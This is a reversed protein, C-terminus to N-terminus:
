CRVVFLLLSSSLPSVVHRAYFSGYMRVLLAARDELKRLPEAAAVAAQEAGRLFGDRARQSIGVAVPPVVLPLEPREPDDAHVGGRALVPEGVALEQEPQFFRADFDVPLDERAERDVVGGPEAREGISGFGGQRLPTRPKGPVESCIARRRSSPIAAMAAARLSLSRRSAFPRKKPFFPATEPIRFPMAASGTSSRLATPSSAFRARVSSSDAKSALRAFIRSFSRRRRSPRSRISTVRGPLAGIGPWRCGTECVIDSIMETKRRRPKEM